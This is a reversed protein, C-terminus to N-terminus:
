CHVSVTNTKGTWFATQVLRGVREQGAAELGAQGEGGGPRQGGAQHDSGGEMAQDGWPGGQDRPPPRSDCKL